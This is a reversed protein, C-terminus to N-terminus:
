FKSCYGDEFLPEDSVELNESKSVVMDININYKNAFEFDREDHGPVAM